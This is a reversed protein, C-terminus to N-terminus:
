QTRAAMLEATSGLTGVFHTAPLHSSIKKAQYRSFAILPLPSNQLLNTLYSWFLDSSSHAMHKTSTPQPDIGLWSALLYDFDLVLGAPKWRTNQISGVLGELSTIHLWSSHNLSPAKTSIISDLLYADNISTVFPLLVIPKYGDPISQSFFTLADLELQLLATNQILYNTGRLGLGSNYETEELSAGYRLRQRQASDMSMFFYMIQHPFLGRAAKLQDVLNSIVRRKEVENLQLPHKGQQSFVFNSSFVVGDSINKLIPNTVTVDNILVLQQNQSNTFTNKTGPTTHHLFVSGKNADISIEQGPKIKKTALNAQVITPIHFHTLFQLVHHDRITTEVVVGNARKIAPLDQKTLQYAVLITGNNGRHNKTNTLLWPTGQVYGGVLSSGVIVLQHLPQESHNTHELPEFWTIVPKSGAITWSVKQDVFHLQKLLKAYHTIQILQTTSPQKPQNNPSGTAQLGDLTQQWYKQQTAPQTQIVANTRIDTWFINTSAVDSHNFSGLQSWIEFQTKAGTKTNRTLVIGSFIPQEALQLVLPQDQNQIGIETITQLLNSDGTVYPITTPQKQGPLQYYLTVFSNGLQQHYLKLVAFQTEEDLNILKHITEVPLIFTPTVPIGLSFLTYLREAASGSILKQYPGAEALPIIAPILM